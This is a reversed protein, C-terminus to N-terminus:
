RTSGNAKTSTATRLWKFESDMPLATRGNASILTAMLDVGCEQDTSEEKTGNARMLRETPGSTSEKVKHRVEYSSELTSTGMRIFSMATDKGRIRSGNERMSVAQKTYYFEWVRELVWQHSKEWTFLTMMSNSGVIQSQKSQRGLRRSLSAKLSM